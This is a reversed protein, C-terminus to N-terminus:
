EVTPPNASFGLLEAANDHFVRQQEEVTLGLRRVAAVANAPTHVAALPLSMTHRRSGARTATRM